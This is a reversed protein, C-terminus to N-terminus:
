SRGGNGFIRLRWQALQSRALHKAIQVAGDQERPRLEGAEYLQRARSRQVKGSSTKPLTGAPLMTVEDVGLGLSRQITDRVESAIQSWSEEPERTEALVVVAERGLGERYTAFAIVNGTRVREVRSAAWELDQPYYNKGHVILVDKKRGCVFVQGDALYGLDGTSLWGDESLAEATAEPDQFYGSMVSPGRLQLEGVRREPLPHGEEPDVVRIEHRPFPRGCGVLEVTGEAGPEAAEAVGEGWLREALVTDTPLGRAFSIALTHEAMGYSPVYASERFGVEGFREAFRRLTEAQIPEAGCGAARVCSLDLGQLDRDRVRKVALAYAFNPAYTITGRHESLLQLWRVPRKLFSMPSLFTVPVVHYIPAMVFGILGMDHYLPLWSVGRDREDTRLGERMIAWANHSINEHTVVVGKPRATSGSTFQLFAVDGPRQGPDRFRSAEGDLDAVTLLGQLEPVEELLAGLVAKIRPTTVLWRAGAARVIHRAHDLYGTLQGLGFPPYMPVPVGAARSVGLFTPVFEHPEPLVLAVRDGPRLARRQLAEAVERSRHALREFSWAQQSGDEAVFTFGADQREAALDLAESLTRLDIM